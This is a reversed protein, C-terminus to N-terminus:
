PTRIASSFPADDGPARHIVARRRVEELPLDTRILGLEYLYDPLYGSVLIRWDLPVRSDVIRALRYIITTCNSTVTQYFEPQRALHNGLAVYSLFLARAQEPSVKLPFLSVTEGRADTRLRVIDNEDAAVLVLEFAKFFGGVESFAEGKEKRIEVSFVVRSGDRFGFGILTHAIAPSAWVSSFLDVSVLDALAYRRTEWRETFDTETRWDFNRVNHLVVTDGELAGTVGHAVEPAWDRSDSPRISGWWLAVVAGALIAGGLALAMRRRYRAPPGLPLALIVLLLAAVAAAAMLPARWHPPAQHWFATMSWAAGLGLVLALVGFGVWALVGGGSRASAAAPRKAESPDSEVRPM